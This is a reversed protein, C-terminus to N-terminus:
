EVISLISNVIDKVDALLGQNSLESRFYEKKLEWYKKDLDVLEESNFEKGFGKLILELTEPINLKSSDIVLDYHKRITAEDAMDFGYIKIFSLRNANEREELLKLGDKRGQSLIRENRVERSCLLYVKFVDTPYDFFGNIKSDAIVNNNELIYKRMSQDVAIDYKSVLVKTYEVFREGEEEYGLAKALKRQIMGAYILKMKLYYALLLSISTSGAGPEGSIILKNYNM